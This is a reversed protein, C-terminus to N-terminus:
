LVRMSNSEIKVSIPTFGGQEGDVHYHLSSNSQISIEKGRLFSVAPHGVHKGAYVKPFIRIFEPISVNHVCCIELWGDQHKADPCIYMGGGYRNINCIAVLWVQEFTHIEGDLTITVHSPQYRFLSQIAFWAYSLKGLYKKWRSQNVRSAVLGDIGCGVSSIMRRDGVTATDIWHPQHKLIRQLAQVPNSPINEVAAFDNGTGSSIVGLPIKTGRLGMSVEHITGDGGMAVIAKTQPQNALEQAIQTAQQPKRTYTVDFAIQYRMLERHVVEWTKAGKGQGSNPNM